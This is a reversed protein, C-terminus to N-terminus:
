TADRPHYFYDSSFVNGVHVSTNAKELSEKLKPGKSVSVATSLMEWDASAPFDWGGFRDRNMNSDTGAAVAIVIDGRKTKKPALTTGATGTRIIKKVGYNNILEHFYISACPMGMGHPFITLKVGEFMGTYATAGRVSNVQEVDKLFKDAIWKARLPDGPCICVESIKGGGIPAGIHPTTEPEKGRKDASSEQVTNKSEVM